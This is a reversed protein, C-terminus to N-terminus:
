DEPDEIMTGYMPSDLRQKIEEIEKAIQIVLEEIPM